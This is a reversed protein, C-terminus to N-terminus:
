FDLLEKSIAKLNKSFTENAHQFNTNTNTNWQFSGNTKIIIFFISVSLERPGKPWRFIKFRRFNEALQKINSVFNCELVHTNKYYMKKLLLTRIIEKLLTAWPVGPGGIIKLRRFNKVLQKWFKACRKMRICFYWPSSPCKRDKYKKLM